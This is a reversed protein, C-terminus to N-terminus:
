CFDTVCDFKKEVRKAFKNIEAREEETLGGFYVVIRGFKEKIQVVKNGEDALPAGWGKVVDKAPDSEACFGGRFSGKKIKMYGKEKLWTEVYDFIEAYWRKVEKEMEAFIKEEVVYSTRVIKFGQATLRRMVSKVCTEIEGPDKKLTYSWGLEKKGGSVLFRAAEPIYAKKVWGSFMKNPIQNVWGHFVVEISM